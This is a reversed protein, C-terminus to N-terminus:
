NAKKRSSKKAQAIQKGWIKNNLFEGLFFLAIVLGVSVAYFVARQPWNLLTLVPYVWTNTKFYIVHVWVLYSCFFALIGTLAKKRSPYVRCTFFLEILIFIMINTHMVHNLWTPFFEDLAKPFVLERDIAMLAWFTLGVYMATPFALVSFLYDKLKRILPPKAAVNENTGIFDNLVAVSFYLTQLLQFLFFYM